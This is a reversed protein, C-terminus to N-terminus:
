HPTSSPAPMIPRPPPRYITPPRTSRLNKTRTMTDRVRKRDIEEDSPGPKALPADPFRKEYEGTLDALRRETQAIKRRDGERLKATTSISGDHARALEGAVILGDVAKGILWNSTKTREAYDAKLRKLKAQEDGIMSRLRKKDQQRRFTAVTEGQQEILRGNQTTTTGIIKGSRSYAKEVVMGNEFVTTTVRGGDRYSAESEADIVGYRGRREENCATMLSFVLVCMSLLLFRSV